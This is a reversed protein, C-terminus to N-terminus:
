LCAFGFIKKMITIKFYIVGGYRRLSPFRHHTQIRSREDDPFVIRKPFAHGIVSTASVVFEGAVYGPADSYVVSSKPFGTRNREFWAELSQSWPLSAWKKTIITYIKDDLWGATHYEYAGGPAIYGSADWWKGRLPLTGGANYLPQAQDGAYYRKRAEAQM